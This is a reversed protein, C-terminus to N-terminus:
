KYLRKIDEMSFAPELWVEKIFNMLKEISDFDSIDMPLKKPVPYNNNKLLNKLALGNFSFDLYADLDEKALLAFEKFLKQLEILALKYEELSKIDKELGLKLGEIESALSNRKAFLQKEKTLIEVPRANSKRNLEISEAINEREDTKSEISSKRSVISKEVGSIKTQLNEVEMKKLQMYYWYVFSWIAHRSALINNDIYVIAKDIQEIEQDKRKFYNEDFSKRQELLSETQKFSTEARQLNSYLITLENILTIIRTEDKTQSKEKDKADISVRLSEILNEMEQKESELVSIDTKIFPNNEELKTIAEKNQLLVSKYMSYLNELEQSYKVHEKLLWQIRIERQNIVNEWSWFLNDIEEETKQNEIEENIKQLVNTLSDIGSNYNDISKKLVIMQNEIKKDQASIMSMSEQKFNESIQAYQKDKEDLLAKQATSLKRINQDIDVEKVPIQNSKVVLDANVTELKKKLDEIDKKLWSIVNVLDVKEVFDKENINTWLSEFTALKQQSFNLQTNKEQLQISIDTIEKELDYVSQVLQTYDQKLSDNLSIQNNYESERQTIIERAKELLLAISPKSLLDLSEQQNQNKSLASKLSTLRAIYTDLVDFDIEKSGASVREQNIFVTRQKLSTLFNINKDLFSLLQSQSKIWSLETLIKDLYKDLIEEKKEKSFTNENRFDKLISTTSNKNNELNNREEELKMERQIEALLKTFYKDKVNEIQPKEKDQAKSQQPIWSLVLLLSATVLLGTLKNSTSQFNLSSRLKM